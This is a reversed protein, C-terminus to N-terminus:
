AAMRRGACRVRVAALYAELADSIAALDAPGPKIGKPGAHEFARGLAALRPAAVTGAAGKLTHMERVLTGVPLNGTSLRRIRERTETEFIGIMEMAGDDGIMETLGDFEVSDFAPADDVPGDRPPITGGPDPHSQTVANARMAPEQAM